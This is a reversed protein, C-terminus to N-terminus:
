HPGAGRCPRAQMKQPSSTTADRTFPLPAMGGSEGEEVVVAAVPNNPAAYKCSPCVFPGASSSGAARDGARLGRVAIAACRCGGCYSAAPPVAARRTSRVNGLANYHTSTSTTAATRCFLLLLSPPDCVCDGDADDDVIM